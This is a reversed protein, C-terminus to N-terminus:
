LAWTKIQSKLICRSSSASVLALCNKSNSSQILKLCCTLMGVCFCPCVRSKNIDLQKFVVIVKLISKANDSWWQIKGVTEIAKRKNIFFVNIWVRCYGQALCPDWNELWLHCYNWWVKRRHPNLKEIWWYFGSLIQHLTGGDFCFYDGSLSCSLPFISVFLSRLAASCQSLCIKFSM